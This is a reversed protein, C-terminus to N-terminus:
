SVAEDLAGGEGDDGAGDEVDDTEPALGLEAVVPLHDSAETQLVDATVARLDPTHLIWDLRIDPADAPWTRGATEGAAWADVFSAERRLHRIPRSGPRAKLGGLLVTRPEGDWAELIADIQSIQLEALEEAQDHLQTTIIRLPEEEGTDLDVQLFGRRVTTGAAPLTGYRIEEIPFRSFIANGWLPDETPAHFAVHVFGLDRRLWEFADVGGSILWGRPVEQLAVVDVDAAAITAAIEPLSPSGDVAYGAHIDYTMVRIPWGDPEPQESIPPSPRVVMATIAVAAVAMALVAPRLDGRRGTLPVDVSALAAFALVVGIAGRLETQSLLLDVEYVLYYAIGLLAMVVFGAGMWIGTSAGSPRTPDVPAVTGALFPGTAVLGALIALASVPGEVTSLGAAVLLLLGSATTVTGREERVVVFAAAVLTLVNGVTILVFAQGWGLGTVESVWGLNQLVLWHLLLLPGIAILAAGDRPTRDGPIGLWVRRGLWRRPGAPGAGAGLLLLAFVTALVVLATWAVPGADVSIPLTGRMARLATDTATGLVLGYILAPRSRAAVLALFWLFLTTGVASSWLDVEPLASIQEVSRAGLLGAGVALLAPGPRLLRIVIPVALAAVFPALAVSSVAVLGADATERLYWAVAPMLARVLQGGFVVGAGVLIVGGLPPGAGPAALAVRPTRSATTTESV